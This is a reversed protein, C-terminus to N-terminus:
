AGPASPSETMLYVAPSRRSSRRFNVARGSDFKLGGPSWTSHFASSRRATMSRVAVAPRMPPSTVLLRPCWSVAGRRLSQLGRSTLSSVLHFPLTSPASSASSSSCAAIRLFARTTSLLSVSVFKSLSAAWHSLVPMHPVSSSTLAPTDTTTVLAWCSACKEAMYALSQWLIAALTGFKLLTTTSVHWLSNSASALSFTSACM